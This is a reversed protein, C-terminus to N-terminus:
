RGVAAKWAQKLLKLIESALVTVPVDYWGALRQKRSDDDPPIRRLSAVLIQRVLLEFQGMQQLANRHRDGLTSGHVLTSRVGYFDGLIRSAARAADDGLELLSIARRRLRQGIGFGHESVLTAELAIMYDVVRDVEDWDRNFEKAGGYLFFRRATAFWQSRWSQSATLESRFTDWSECEAQSLQFFSSTTIDAAIRQQFQFSLQGSPDRISHRTFSIDGPRFLRLLLLTDEIDGPIRGFGVVGRAVESDQYIREYLWETGNIRVGPFLAMADSLDGRSSLQRLRFDRFQLEPDNSDIFKVLAYATYV